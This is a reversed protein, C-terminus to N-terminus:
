FPDPKNFVRSHIPNIQLLSMMLTYFIATLAISSTEKVIEVPQLMKLLLLTYNVNSSIEQHLKKM